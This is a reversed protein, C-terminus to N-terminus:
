SASEGEAPPPNPPPDPTYLARVYSAVVEPGAEHIAKELAVASECREISTLGSLDDGTSVGELWVPSGGLAAYRAGIREWAEESAEPARPANSVPATMADIMAAALRASSAQGDTGLELHRETSLGTESYEHCAVMHGRQLTLLFDLSASAIPLLHQDDAGAIRYLNAAFLTTTFEASRQQISALSAGERIATVVSAEFTAYEEPFAAAIKAMAGSTDADALSARFESLLHFDSVADISPTSQGGAAPASAALVVAAALAGFASRM